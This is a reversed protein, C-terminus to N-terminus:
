CTRRTTNLIFPIRFEVAAFDELSKPKETKEM